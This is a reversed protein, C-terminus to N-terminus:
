IERASGHKKKKTQKKLRECHQKLFQSMLAHDHTEMIAAESMMATIQKYTCAELAYHVGYKVTM